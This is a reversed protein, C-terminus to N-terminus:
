PKSISEFRRPENARSLQKRVSMLKRIHRLGFRVDGKANLAPRAYMMRSRVFTIETPRHLVSPPRGRRPPAKPDGGPLPPRPSVSECLIQMDQLPVGLCFLTLGLDLNM